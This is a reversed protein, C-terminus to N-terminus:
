SRLHFCNGGWFTMILLVYFPLPHTTATLDPAEAVAVVAVAVAVDVNFVLNENNLAM